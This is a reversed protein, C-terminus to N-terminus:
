NTKWIDYRATRPPEDSQEDGQHDHLDAAGRLGTAIREGRAEVLGAVMKNLHALASQAKIVSADPFERNALAATHMLSTAAVLADAITAESEGMERILRATAANMNLSM